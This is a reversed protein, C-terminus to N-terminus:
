PRGGSFPQHGTASMTADRASLQSATVGARVYCGTPHLKYTVTGEYFTKVAITPPRPLDSADPEAVALLLVPLFFATM